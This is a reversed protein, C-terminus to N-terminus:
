PAAASSCSVPRSGMVPLPTGSGRDGLDDASSSWRGTHSTPIVLPLKLTKNSVVSFRLFHRLFVAATQVVVADQRVSVDAADVVM